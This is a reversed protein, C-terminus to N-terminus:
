PSEDAVYFRGEHERFRERLGAYFEAASLPVEVGRQVCDAVVRSYLLCDSREADDLSDGALATLRRAVFEWVQEAAVRQLPGEEQDSPAVKLASIVLDHKVSGALNQELVWASTGYWQCPGMQGGFRDGPM